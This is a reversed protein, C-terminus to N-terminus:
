VVLALLQQSRQQMLRGNAEGLYVQRDKKLGEAVLLPAAADNNKAAWDVIAIIVPLLSIGRESLIYVASKKDNPDKHKEIFGDALLQKLRSALINTSIGEPSALFDKYRQKGALMMDRLILLSWRDGFLDLSCAIPCSTRSVDTM